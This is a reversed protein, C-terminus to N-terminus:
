GGRQNPVIHDYAAQEAIRGDCAALADIIRLHENFTADVRNWVSDLEELLHNTMRVMLDENSPFHTSAVNLRDL